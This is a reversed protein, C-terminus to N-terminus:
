RAQRQAVAQHWRRALAGEFRPLDVEFSDSFARRRDVRTRFREFYRVIRATGHEQLLLEVALLAQAYLQGPARAQAEAWQPFTSLSELPTPASGLRVATLPALVEERLEDFSGLRLHAAVRCAVWEAFGERLWQESEGRTGGAFRYQMSHALEHALLRVRRRRDYGDVVQANVLVASAGGIADFASANRALRPTYGAQLLGEEFARRTPFLVVPVEVPPLQLAPEFAAAIAGVDRAYRATRASQPAQATGVVQVIEISRPPKACAAPLLAAVGVAPVGVLIRLRQALVSHRM